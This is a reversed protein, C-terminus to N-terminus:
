WPHDKSEKLRKKYSALLCAPQADACTNNRQILWARQAATLNDLAATERQRTPDTPSRQSLRRNEDHHSQMAMLYRSTLDRDLRALEVNGCIAKEIRNGAKGCDFSPSPARPDARIVDALATMPIHVIPNGAYGNFSYPGYEVVLEDPQWQFAIHELQHPGAYGIHEEDLPTGSKRYQQRIDDIVLQSLKKMGRPGDLLEPLFVQVYDPPLFSYSYFYPLGHPGGTYVNAGIEVSFMVADNRTVKYSASTNYPDKATASGLDIQSVEKPWHTGDLLKDVSAIGTQPYHIDLHYRGTNRIIAKDTVTVQALAHGATGLFLLIALILNRM